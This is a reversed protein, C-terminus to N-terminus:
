ARFKSVRHNSNKDKKRLSRHETVLDHDMLYAERPAALTCPGCLVLRQRPRLAVPLEAGGHRSLAAEASSVAPPCGPSIM